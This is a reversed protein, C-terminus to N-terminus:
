IIFLCTFFRSCCLVSHCLIPDCRRDCDFPSMSNSPCRTSGDVVVDPWLRNIVSDMCGTSTRRRVDDGVLQRVGTQHRAKDTVSLLVRSTWRQFVWSIWWLEKRDQTPRIQSRDSLNESHGANSPGLLLPQIDTDACPNSIRMYVADAEFFRYLYPQITAWSPNFVVLQPCVQCSLCVNECFVYPSPSTIRDVVTVVAM